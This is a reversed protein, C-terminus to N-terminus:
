HGIKAIDVREPSGGDTPTGVARVDIRPQQVGKEVLYARVALVRSLAVRRAGSAASGSAYGSLMIRDSNGALMRAVESLEAEVAPSLEASSGTFSIRLGNPGQTATSAPNLAAVQQRERPVAPTPRMPVNVVGPGPGASPESVSAGLLGGAVIGSAAAPQPRVAPAPAEAAAAPKAPAAPEPPPAAAPTPDVAAQRAQPPPEAAPLSPTSDASVNPAPMKAATPTTVQQVAPPLAATEIKAPPSPPAVAEAKAVPVSAPKSAAAPKAAATKPAAAAAKPTAAPAARPTAAPAEVPHLKPANAVQKHPAAKSKSATRHRAPAKAHASKAASGPRKLHAVKRGHVPGSPPLHDLVGLNVQVEPGGGNGIVVQAAVPRLALALLALAAALSLALPAPQSRM